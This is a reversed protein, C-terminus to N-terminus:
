RLGGGADQARSELSRVREELTSAEFTAIIARSLNALASAVRPDLSGTHTQELARELRELVPRLREPLLKGARAAKSRGHGGKARAEQARPAHGICWRGDVTASAVCPTGDKRRGNCVPHQAISLPKADM